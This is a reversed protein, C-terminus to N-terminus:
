FFFFCHGDMKQSEVVAMPQVTIGWFSHGHGLGQFRLIHSRIQFLTRQLHLKSQPDRSSAMRPISSGQVWHCTDKYCLSFVSVSVHPSALHLHLQLSFLHSFSSVSSSWWFGPSFCAGSEGASPVLDTQCRYKPSRAELFVLSYIEMTKFWWSQSSKNSYGQSVLVNSM